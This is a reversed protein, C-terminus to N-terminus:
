YGSSVDGNNSNCYHQSLTHNNMSFIVGIIDGMNWDDDIVLPSYSYDYGIGAHLQDYWKETASKIKSGVCCPLISPKNNSSSWFSIGRFTVTLKM